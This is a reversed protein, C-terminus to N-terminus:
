RIMAISGPSRARGADRKGFRGELKKRSMFSVFRERRISDAHLARSNNALLFLSILINDGLRHLRQALSKAESLGVVELGLRGCVQTIRVAQEIPGLPIEARIAVIDDLDRRETLYRALEQLSFELRRVMLRAWAVTPGEAPIPPVQDNWFHLDLVRDGRRVRTGDSLVADTDATTLQLRFLCLPSHSYESVGLRARLRADLAEIMRGFLKHGRRLDKGQVRSSSSGLDAMLRQHTAM